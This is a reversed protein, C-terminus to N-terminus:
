CTFVLLWLLMDMSRHIRPFVVQAGLTSVSVSVSWGVCRPGPVWGPVEKHRSVPFQSGSDEEPQHAQTRGMLGLPRVPVSRVARPVAPDPKLVWPPSWLPQPHSLICFQIHLIYACNEGKKKQFTYKTNPYLWDVTNHYNWISLLPAWGDMCVHGKEGLSGEWGPEICMKRLFDKAIFSQLWSSFLQQKVGILLFAIKMSM